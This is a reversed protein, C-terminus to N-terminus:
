ACCAVRLCFEVKSRRTDSHTLPWVPLLMELLPAPPLPHVLARRPLVLTLSDHQLPLRTSQQAALLRKPEEKRRASMAGSLCCRRKPDIAAQRTCGAPRADLPSIGQPNRPPLRSPLESGPPMCACRVAAGARPRAGAIRACFRLLRRTATSSRSTTQSSAATTRRMPMSEQRPWVQVTAADGAEAAHMLATRGDEDAANVNTGPAALLAAVTRADGSAAADMLETRLVDEEGDEGEEGDEEEEDAAAAAEEEDAAVVQV